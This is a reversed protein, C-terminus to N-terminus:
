SHEQLSKVEVDYHKGPEDLPFVRAKEYNEDVQEIFVKEGKYTVDIMDPSDLIEVVRNKDM